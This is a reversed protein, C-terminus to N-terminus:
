RHIELELKINGRRTEGEIRKFEIRGLGEASLTDGVRVPTSSTALTGNVRVKKNEIGGQFYARSVGFGKAGVVDLRLSPVVVSRTKSGRELAQGTAPVFRVERTRGLLVLQSTAELQKVGKQTTAFLFGQRDERVDGLLEPPLGLAVRLDDPDFDPEDTELRLVRVPDDVNPIHEPYLTYVVRAADPFGGHVAFRIGDAALARRDLDAGELFGTRIVRGGRAQQVLTRTDPSSM